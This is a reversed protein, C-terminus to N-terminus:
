SGFEGTEENYTQGNHRGLGLYNPNDSVDIYEGGPDAVASGGPGGHEWGKLTRAAELDGMVVGDVVKIYYRWLDREEQPMATQEDRDVYVRSHYNVNSSPM